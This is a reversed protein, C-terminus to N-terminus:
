CVRQDDYEYAISGYFSEPQLLKILTCNMDIQCNSTVTFPIGLFNMKMNMAIM